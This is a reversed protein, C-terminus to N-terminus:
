GERNVWDGSKGGTKSALSIDGITMAKDIAKAMDYVTLLAVSVATLAEMEVGTRGTLAVTATATLGTADPVLDLTIKTLALPHCLPILDSTKKAAMIGAVRAVSLVDGKRVLGDRIAAAAAASMSIRGTAVAERQTEAKTGVDVMRAAGSEDLHTLDSM